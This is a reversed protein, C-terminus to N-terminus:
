LGKLNLHIVINPLLCFAPPLLPVFSHMSISMPLNKAQQERGEVSDPLGRRLDVWGEQSRVESEQSRFEGAPNGFKGWLLGAEFYM